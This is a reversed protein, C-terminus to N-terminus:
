PCAWCLVTRRFLSRGDTWRRLTEAFQSRIKSNKWLKVLYKWSVRPESFKKVTWLQLWFRGRILQIYVYFSWRLSGSNHKIEILPTFCRGASKAFCKLSLGM